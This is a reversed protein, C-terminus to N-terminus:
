TGPTNVPLTQLCEIIANLVAVVCNYQATTLNLFLNNQNRQIYAKAGKLVTELTKWYVKTAM